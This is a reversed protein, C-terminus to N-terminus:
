AEASEEALIERVWKIAPSGHAIVSDLHRRYDFGPTEGLGGVIRQSRVVSADAGAKKAARVRAEVEVDWMEVSGLYYTSLQTSTLRARLWKAQAEHREQFGGGVMLEMAEDETMDHVHIRADMIANTIARLYFKWHTLMLAPDDAGYGADMMVQTVYVAWGEAFPGSWFVARTLSPSQNSANLQLYHGPIAEHVATLRLMRYNDERLYSEIAEDGKTEDPPTIFYYSKQGKDLPGPPSLFAGGYPRMFVPTWVIQLPDTPLGIIGRERCFKEIRAVEATSWELLEDARPHDQAIVDLVGKVTASDAAEQSGQTSADPLQQDPLLSSWMQRALRVMEGRVLTYDREARSLLEQTSLDSSLTHRLKKQFLEPGLRGEAQARGRIETKLAEDFEDVAKRADALAAELPQVLGPEEGAAARRRAEELGQEVLEVIGPLQAIATETHLLSVPRGPLGVLEDRADAFLKRLGLTRGLLAPGRHAWPAFERALLAFLGSGAIQVYSLPDWAYQRLEGESFEWGDLAEGLIGVDLRDDRTFKAENLNALRARHHRITSLLQERGQASMDPWRDDFAHYGIETAFVPELEFADDLLKHLAMEFDTRPAPRTDPALSVFRPQVADTV